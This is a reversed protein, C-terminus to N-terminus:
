EQAGFTTQRRIVDIKPLAEIDRIQSTQRLDTSRQNRDWQQYRTTGLLARGMQRRKIFILLKPYVPCLPMPKCRYNSLCMFGRPCPETECTPLSRAARASAASCQGAPVCQNESNRQFGTMCMCKNLNCQYTCIQGVLPLSCRPECTSGCTKFEENPGCVPAQRRGRVIDPVIPSESTNGTGPLLVRRCESRLVCTKNDSDRVFGEECQCVNPVCNKTCPRPRRDNCNPECASGCTKFVENEGCRQPKMLKIAQSAVVVTSLVILVLLKAM